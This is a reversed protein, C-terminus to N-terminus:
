DFDVTLCGSRLFIVTIIGDIEAIAAGWCAVFILQFLFSCFITNNTSYDMQGKFDSKNPQGCVFFKIMEAVFQEKAFVGM